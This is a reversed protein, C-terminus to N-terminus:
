IDRWIYMINAIIDGNCRRFRMHRPLADRLVQADFAFCFAYYVERLMAPLCTAGDRAADRPRRSPTDPLGHYRWPRAAFARLPTPFYSPPASLRPLRFAAPSLRLPYRAAMTALFFLTIIERM